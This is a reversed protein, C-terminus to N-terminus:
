YGDSECCQLLITKMKCEDNYNLLEQSFFVIIGGAFGALALWSIKKFYWMFYIKEIGMVAVGAASGIIIASGGTGTTLALFEWSPHDTPYTNLNYIGQSTAKLPVNDILSSLIVLAISILYNNKLNTSLSNAVVKLIGLSQLASVTLLIGLLYLISPTDIRQLVKAVMYKEAYESHKNKHIISNILWMLGLALRMGMFPPLHTLTKFVM